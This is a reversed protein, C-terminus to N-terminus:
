SGFHLIGFCQLMSELLPGSILFCFYTLGLLFFQLSAQKGSDRLPVSADTELVSVFAIALIYM